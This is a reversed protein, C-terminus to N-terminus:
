GDHGEIIILEGEAVQQRIARAESYAASNYCAHAAEVSPFEVVVNRERAEGEKADYAGGRVLFNAGFEQYAPQAIKLYDKYREPDRVNIRAIWYGKKM